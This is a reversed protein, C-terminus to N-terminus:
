LDNLSDKLNNLLTELPGSSPGDKKLSYLFDKFEKEEQMTDYDDYDDDEYDDYDDDDDDDDDGDGDDDDGADADYEPYTSQNESAKTLLNYKTKNNHIVTKPVKHEFEDQYARCKDLEEKDVRLAHSLFYEFFDDEDIDIKQKEFYAKIEKEDYDNDNKIHTSTNVDKECDRNLNKILETLNEMTDINHKETHQEFHIKSYKYHDLKTINLFFHLQKSLNDTSGLTAINKIIKKILIDLVQEVINGILTEVSDNTTLTTSALIVSLADCYTDCTIMDLEDKKNDNSPTFKRSVNEPKIQNVYAFNLIYSLIKPDKRLYEVYKTNLNRFSVIKLHKQLFLKMFDPQLYNKSLVDSIGTLEVCKFYTKEIFDLSEEFTLGKNPYYTDAPIIKFKGAHVWLRNEGIPYDYEPPLTEGCELLLFDAETDVIKIFVNNGNKSAKNITESFSRLIHVVLSEEVFANDNVCLTGKIYEKTSNDAFKAKVIDMKIGEHSNWPFYTNWPMLTEHLDHYINM